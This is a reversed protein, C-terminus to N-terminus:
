VGIFNTGLSDTQGVTNLRMAVLRTHSGHQVPCIFFVKMVTSPEVACHQVVCHGASLQFPVWYDVKGM